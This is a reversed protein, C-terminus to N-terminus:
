SNPLCFYSDIAKKYEGDLQLCMGYFFSFDDSINDSIKNARDLYSKAMEKRNTFLLCSGIKYNLEANSANFMQAKNYYFIAQEFVLNADQLDFVMLLAKQRLEDATKINEKAIKLGEKDKKFNSTKFDINQSFLLHPFVLLTVFFLVQKIKIVIM